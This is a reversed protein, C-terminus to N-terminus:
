GRQFQLSLPPSPYQADYCTATKADVPRRVYIASSRCSYRAKTKYYRKRQLNRLVEGRWCHLLYRWEAFSHSTECLDLAYPVYVAHSGQCDSRGKSGAGQKGGRAERGKSGAREKM